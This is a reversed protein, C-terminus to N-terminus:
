VDREKVFWRNNKYDWYIYREQGYVLIKFEDTVEVKGDVHHRHRALVRDITYRTGDDWIIKKPTMQGEASIEVLVGVYHCVFM